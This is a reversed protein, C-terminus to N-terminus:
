LLCVYKCVHVCAEKMELYVNFNFFGNVESKGLIYMIKCKRYWNLFNCVLSGLGSAM